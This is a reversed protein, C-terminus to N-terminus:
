DTRPSEDKKGINQKSWVDNLKKEAQELAKKRLAVVLKAVRVKEEPSAPAKIHTCLFRECLDKLQELQDHMLIVEDFHGYACTSFGFIYKLGLWLRRYFGHYPNLFVSVYIEPCEPDLDWTFRLTHESCSCTCEIYEHKM